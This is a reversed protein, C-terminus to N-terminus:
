TIGNRASEKTMLCPLLGRRFILTSVLGGRWWIFSESKDRGKDATVETTAGQKKGRRGGRGRKHSSGAANAINQSVTTDVSWEDVLKIWETKFAVLRINKELQM